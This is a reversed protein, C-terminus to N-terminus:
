NGPGYSVVRLYYYKIKGLTPGNGSFGINVLYQPPVWLVQQTRLYIKLNLDDKSEKTSRVHHRPKRIGILSNDILDILRHLFGRGPVVVCCAFNLLGILSKLEKLTVSKRSWFDTFHTRCKNLKDEPIYAEMLEFQLATAPGVTKENAILIGIRRHLCLFNDLDVKCKAKSSCGM